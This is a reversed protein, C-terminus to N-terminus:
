PCNNRVVRFSHSYSVLTDCHIANVEIFYETERFGAGHIFGPKDGFTSMDFSFALGSNPGNELIRIQYNSGGLFRADFEYETGLCGVRPGLSLPLQASSAPRVDLELEVSRLVKGTALATSGGGSRRAYIDVSVTVKGPGEWFVEALNQDEQPVEGAFYRGNRISDGWTYFYVFHEEDLGTVKYRKPGIVECLYTPGELQINPVEPTPQFLDCSLISGFLGVYLLSRLTRVSSFIASM